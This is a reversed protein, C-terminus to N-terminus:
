LQSSEKNKKSQQEEKEKARYISMFNKDIYNVNMDFSMHPASIEIETNGDIYKAYKDGVFPINQSVLKYKKKLSNNLDDFKNKYFTTLVAVLINKTDFIVTVEKLGDFEIDSTKLEYMDGNTYKNTGKKNVSYKDLVDKSTAKNIQLGFPSPDALCISPAAVTLYIILALIIRM